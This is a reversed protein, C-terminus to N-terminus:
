YRCLPTCDPDSLSRRGSQTGFQLCLSVVERLLDTSSGDLEAARFLSSLAEDNSGMEAYINGIRQIKAAAQGLNGKRLYIDALIRLEAIGEDLLGGKIDLDALEEHARPDDPAFRVMENLTNLATDIQRNQRYHKALDLYERMTSEPDSNRMSVDELTSVVEDKGTQLQKVQRLIAQM